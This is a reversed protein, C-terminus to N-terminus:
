GLRDLLERADQQQEANGEALVEELIQRAGDDDGMDIYARALDLKTSLPDGDDAFVFDDESSDSLSRERQRDFETALNLEEIPSDEIELGLFEPEADLGSVSEEPNDAAGLFSLHELESSLDEAEVPAEPPAVPLTMEVEEPEVSDLTYSGIEADV